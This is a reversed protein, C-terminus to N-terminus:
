NILYGNKYSCESYIKGNKYYEKYEGDLNGGKYTSEIHINGNDYYEKYEGDLNGGKYTSEIRIKGNEYYTKGIEGIESLDFIKINKSKVWHWNGRIIALCETFNNELLFKVFMKYNDVCAVNKKAEERFRELKVKLDM